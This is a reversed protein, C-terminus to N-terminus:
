VGAGARRAVAIIHPGLGLLSPESESARAADLIVERDREDDWREARHPLYAAMGEVGLVAEVVLGGAEAEAALEDPRQFYATTFWGAHNTPNEHRGTALDATVITRFAPDFLIGHALGDFLSAFRSIAMGLVVGGPVLVRAVERWAQVRDDPDVLHYLPGFLLAVDVSADAVALSRADGVEASFRAHAAGLRSRAREVQARVPDVLHVDHGDELLWEAHVGTAGGVDLVRQPAPGLYRRVIEQVRARELLGSGSRLRADEDQQNEYHDRVEEPILPTSM